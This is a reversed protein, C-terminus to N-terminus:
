RSWTATLTAKALANANLLYGVMAASSEPPVGLRDVKLAFVTIVYRHPKDGPPPCAGGYAAVRADNHGSQGATLAGPKGAGTPLGKTTAPLDFVLWHWWGSGTPADPDYMTVAFSKTGEPAHKWDLAPSLNQGTCGMGDFVQALALPKGEKVDPSTVSFAPAAALASLPFLAVFVATRIM